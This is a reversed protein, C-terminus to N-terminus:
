YSQWSFAWEDPNSKSRGFYAVGNDGWQLRAKEISDIQFAFEIDTLGGPTQWEIESQILTPWGGFKIGGANPFIKYYDDEFKALIPIPCDDVYPFDQKIVEPMVQFPKIPSTTPVSALPVLKDEAKYTRLCWSTGNLDGSDPISQASIFVTLFAVDSLLPPKFLFEDLNLQCLPYMAVGKWYPWVQGEGALLVKGVWSSLPNDTPRFGGVKLQIAPRAVQEVFQKKTMAM